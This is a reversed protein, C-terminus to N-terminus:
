VGTIFWMDKTITLTSFMDQRREVERREKWERYGTCTKVFSIIKGPTSHIQLNMRKATWFRSWVSGKWCDFPKRPDTSWIWYNWKGYNKLVASKRKGALTESLDHSLLCKFSCSRIQILLFNSQKLPWCVRSNRSSRYLFVVPPVFFLNNLTNFNVVPNAVHPQHTVIIM